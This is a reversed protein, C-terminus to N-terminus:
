IKVYKESVKPFQSLFCSKEQAANIPGKITSQSFSHSMESVFLLGTDGGQGEAHTQSHSLSCHNLIGCLGDFLYHVFQYATSIGPRM